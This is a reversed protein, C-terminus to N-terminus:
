IETTSCVRENKLSSIDRASVASDITPIAVNMDMASQSAWQGTGKQKAKDLIMDVLRNGTLDDKRAFIDATIEVLFSKLEGDNWKSFVTTCSM